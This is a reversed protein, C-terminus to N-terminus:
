SVACCVSSTHGTQAPSCRTRPTIIPASRENGPTTLPISLLSFYRATLSDGGGWLLPRLCTLRVGRTEAGAEGPLHTVKSYPICSLRRRYVSAPFGLPSQSLAHHGLQVLSGPTEPHLSDWM